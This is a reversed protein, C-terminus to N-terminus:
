KEKRPRGRGRKPLAEKSAEPKQAQKRAPKKDTKTEDDSPPQAVWLLLENKYKEVESEFVSMYETDTVNVNLRKGCSRRKKNVYVRTIIEFHSEVWTGGKHESKNRRAEIRLWQRLKQPILERGRTLMEDKRREARISLRENKRAQKEAL